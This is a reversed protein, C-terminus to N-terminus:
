ARADLKVFHSLTNSGKFPTIPTSLVPQGDFRYTFRFVQEDYVFRVHISMESKLGGKDIAQYKSFDCLMIDGTDGVTACQEIPVVPRGFLTSYPQASAGGAPLYVPIGGTGVAVSMQNLQPECDQNIVWVANPRSSAMLRSWMKNINEFVITDRTQGTEKGVSVMCGSPIIGLAEGAGTGNIIWDTIKFDFEDKFGTQITQALASTDEMLEDTAYCLGILKKLNLKMRRFKPKSKTREEAEAASYVAIGGSRSGNVRSTEDLGNFIMGNKNGSLTVKNIRPLILGSDWVNKIITDAFDSQVLFGGDSPTTENLGSAANMLRPDVSGGPIGARMVSAMQEGLSNFRDKAKDNPLEFTQRGTPVTMRDAPKELRSAANNERDMAKVIGELEEVKDLLANKMAVEEGTLERNAITAQANIDASKEMLAKIDERYQTATKM